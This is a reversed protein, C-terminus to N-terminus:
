KSQDGKDQSLLNRDQLTYDRGSFPHTLAFKCEWGSGDENSM